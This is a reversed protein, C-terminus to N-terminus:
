FNNGSMLQEDESVFDLGYIINKNAIIVGKYTVTGPKVTIDRQSFPGNYVDENYKFKGLNGDSCHISFKKKFEEEPCFLDTGFIIKPSQLFNELSNAMTAVQRQIIKFYEPVVNWIDKDKYKSAFDLYARVCKNLIVPIETDLKSELMPDADKVQKSFNWTLMRRIISGSNDKWNPVENGGLIGPTTWTISKAKEHKVAVSVDEGSVISQFEAQELALDNKVEPAIFMFADYISSLGFKREVNNSLTKVDDPTYFKRFVKTILTSKGSRAIGKLFPIVQWGDMESVNYCLRGGMVYMWRCTDEDFQQYDLVSQFYPTPIDYWDEVDDYPEFEQDFYKCSVISEPLNKCDKSEYPLFKSSWEERKSDWLKGLFIGNRFSWTHRSKEIEPFQMDTCNTLHTIVDRHASGRSTLNCWLDFWTEKVGVSYVFEQINQVSAWARTTAGEPTKTQVCCHGKYRKIDNKYLHDLCQLIAKQFPSLEEINEMTSCRFISPDAVPNIPVYTPNYVREKIRNSRFLVTWADDVQDIIKNIRVSVKNDNDDECELINLTKAHHFTAGLNNKITMHKVALSEIDIGVGGKPFGSPNLDEPDLFNEYGLRFIIGPDDTRYIKWEEEMETIFSKLEDENMQKIIGEM